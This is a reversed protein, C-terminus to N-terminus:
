STISADFPDSALSVNEADRSLVRGYHIAGSRLTLRQYAFQDSIVKGPHIISELIDQVSFRGALTSLDPGAAGGEDGVRHCRACQAAAFMAKASDFDRASSGDGVVSAAADVTWVRGPGLATPAPPADDASEAIEPPEKFPEGADGLAALADRRIDVIVNGFVTGSARAEARHMWDFYRARQGHTWTLDSRRLLNAYHVQRLSLAKAGSGGDVEAGVVAAADSRASAPAGGLLLIIKSILTPDGLQGLLNALEKDIQDDAHPFHGSLRKRIATAQEDSFGGLRLGALSYSRILLHQEHASLEAFEFRALAALLPALDEAEGRRAVGLAATLAARQSESALAKDRWLVLPQAELALRAAYRLFRDSHGLSALAAPIADPHVRGHFSELSKLIKRSGDAGLTAAVPPDAPQEPGTYRIRYVASPLFRGGAVLLMSGDSGICGDIIPFARGSVFPEQKATYSAGDPTLWAATLAGRGWDVLFLADRYRPPFAANAGAFLAGPSGRRSELLTPLTDPLYDPWKHVGPRWGYDSGSVVHVLRNPRYWPAGADREADADFAFLDGRRNFALDYCNRYGVSHLQWDKGELDFSCIYGGPAMVDPNHTAGLDALLRDNLWPGPIREKALGTPLKSRNGVTLFLRKGGPSPILGHIGHEGTADIRKLLTEEDYQGDGTSDRLRYVGSKGEQNIAVYLAGAHYALGQAGRLETGLPEAITPRGRRPILRFLPGSHSGCIFNGKSEECIVIWSGQEKPVSYLLEAHFDPPLDLSEPAAAQQPPQRPASAILKLGEMSKPLPRDNEGVAGLDSVQFWGRGVLESGAWGPEPMHRGQWTADTRLLNATEPGLYNMWLAVAGAGDKKKAAIGIANTGPQLFRDVEMTRSGDRVYVVPKGNIFVDAEGDCAVHLLARTIPGDCGFRRRLFVPNGVPVPLWIWSPVPATPIKSAASEVPTIPELVAAEAVVPEVAEVLPAEVPPAMLTASDALVPLPTPTASNADTTVPM